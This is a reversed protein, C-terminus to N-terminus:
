PLHRRVVSVIEMVTKADVIVQPHFAVASCAKPDSFSHLFAACISGIEEQEDILAQMGEFDRNQIQEYIQRDLEKYRKENTPTFTSPPVYLPIRHVLADRYNKAYDHHWTKINESNLYERIEAPLHVQTNKHFLGVGFRGGEIEKELSKEIVYVWALNDQLGYINIIFAQLNIVLDSREEESLLEKRAVPFIEFINEICRRITKLRRCVGHALFEQAKEVKLSLALERALKLSLDELDRLVIEREREIEEVQEQTYSM